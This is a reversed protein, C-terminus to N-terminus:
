YSISADKVTASLLALSGASYVPVITPAEKTSQQYSAPEASLKGVIVIELFPYIMHPITPSLILATLRIKESASDKDILESQYTLLFESVPISFHSVFAKILLTEFM